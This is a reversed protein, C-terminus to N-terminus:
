GGRSKEFARQISHIESLISGPLPEPRHSAMIERLDTDIRGFLDVDPVNNISLPQKDGLYRAQWLETRCHEATHPQALYNGRPGERHTLEMALMEDDIRVGRWMNRLLGALENGYLLAHPSYTMGEDMLGMYDCNAPRSHFTQLMNAAIECAADQDFRAARARGGVGTMSLIGLMRSIQCLVMDSLLLQPFGGRGGTAPEM